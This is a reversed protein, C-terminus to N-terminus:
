DEDHTVKIKLEKANCKLKSLALVAEVEEISHGTIAIHSCRQEFAAAPNEYMNKGKFTKGFDERVNVCKEQNPFCGCGKIRDKMKDYYHCNACSTPVIYVKIM